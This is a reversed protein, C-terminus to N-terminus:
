SFRSPVAKYDCVEASHENKSEAEGNIKICFHTFDFTEKTHKIVLTDNNEIYCRDNCRKAPELTRRDEEPCREGPPRSAVHETGLTLLPVNDSFSIVM